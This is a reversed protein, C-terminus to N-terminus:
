RSSYTVNNFLKAYDETSATGNLEITAGNMRMQILCRVILVNLSGARFKLGVLDNILFKSAMEINGFCKDRLEEDSPLSTRCPRSSSDCCSGVEYSLQM